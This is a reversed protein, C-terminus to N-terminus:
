NKCYCGSTSSFCYGNMYGKEACTSSCTSPGSTMGMYVGSCYSSPTDPVSSSGGSNDCAVFIVAVAIAFFLFVKKMTKLKLNNFM